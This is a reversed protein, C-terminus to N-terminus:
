TTAMPCLLCLPDPQADHAGAKHALQRRGRALSRAHRDPQCQACDFVPCPVLSDGAMLLRAEAYDDAELDHCQATAWIYGAPALCRLPGAEPGIVVTFPVSM